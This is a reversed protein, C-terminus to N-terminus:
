ESISIFMKRSVFMSDIHEQVFSFLFECQGTAFENADVFGCLRASTSYSFFKYEFIEFVSLTPLQCYALLHEFWSWEDSVSLPWKALPKANNEM